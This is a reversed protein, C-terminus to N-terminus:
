RVSSEDSRGAFHRFLQLYTRNILWLNKQARREISRSSDDNAHVQGVTGMTFTKLLGAPDRVPTQGGCNGNGENEGQDEDYGDEDGDIGVHVDGNDDDDDDSNGVEKAIAFNRWWRGCNEWRAAGGSSSIEWASNEDSQGWFCSLLQPCVM